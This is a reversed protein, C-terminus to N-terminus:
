GGPYAPFNSTTHRSYEAESFKLTAALCVNSEIGASDTAVMKSENILLDATCM